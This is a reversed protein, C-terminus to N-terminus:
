KCSRWIHEKQETDSHFIQAKGKSKKMFSGALWNSKWNSFTEQKKEWNYEKTWAQIMYFLVFWTIQM